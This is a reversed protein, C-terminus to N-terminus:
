FLANVMAEAEKKQEEEAGTTCPCRKVQHYTWDPREPIITYGADIWGNFDCDKCGFKDKKGGRMEYKFMHEVQALNPFKPLNKCLELVKRAQEDTAALM